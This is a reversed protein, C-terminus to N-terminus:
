MPSGQPTVNTFRRAPPAPQPLSPLRAPMRACHSWLLRMKVFLAHPRRLAAPSHEKQCFLSAIPALARMGARRGLAAGARVAQGSGSALLCLTARGKSEKAEPSPKDGYVSHM